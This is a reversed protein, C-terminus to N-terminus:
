APQRRPLCRGRPAEAHLAVLVAVLLAGPLLSAAGQRWAGRWTVVRDTFFAIFKIIPVYLLAVSWWMVYLAAISGLAVLVLIPTRWAGWLPKLDPRNFSIAYVPDYPKWWCGLAGCVAVRNKEFTVQIDAAHGASNSRVTDVVVALRANAALTTRADGSFNLEGRRITGTQPLHEIAEAIVPFWAVSLCWMMVVAVLMAVGLQALVVRTATANAFAAVGRPTFPQWAERPTLPKDTRQQPSSM